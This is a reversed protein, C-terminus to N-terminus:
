GGLLGALRGDHSLGARGGSEGADAGWGRLRRRAPRIKTTRNSSKSRAPPPTNAKRAVLPWKSFLVCDEMLVVLKFLVTVYAPAVMVSMLTWCACFKTSSGWLVSVPISRRVSCSCFEVLTGM